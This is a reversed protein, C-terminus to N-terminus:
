KMGLDELVRPIDYNMAPPGSIYIREVTDKSINAKIFAEDFRGKDNSFIL